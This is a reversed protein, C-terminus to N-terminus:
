KGEGKALKIRIQRGCEGCVIGATRDLDSALAAVRDTLEKEIRAYEARPIVLDGDSSAPRRKEEIRAVAEAAKSAAGLARTAATHNGDGMARKYLERQESVIGRLDSITDGAPPASAAEAHGEATAPAPEGLEADRLKCWKRVTSEAVRLKFRKTVAASIAAFSAGTDRLRLAEARVKLPLAKFRPM